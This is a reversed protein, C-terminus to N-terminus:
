SPVQAELREKLSSFDHEFRKKAVLAAIPSVLQFLSWLKGMGVYTIATGREVPELTITAQYSLFGSDTKYTLKKNPEFDVIQYSMETRLGYFRQVKRFTAGVGMPEKSILRADFVGTM